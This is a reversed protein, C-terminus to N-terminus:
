IGMLNFWKEAILYQERNDMPNSPLDLGAGSKTCLKQFLAHRHKKQWLPNTGAVFARDLNGSRQVARDALGSDLEPFLAKIGRPIEASDFFELTLYTAHLAAQLYNRYERRSRVEQYVYTGPDYTVGILYFLSALDPGMQDALAMDMIIVLSEAFNLYRRLSAFKNSSPPLISWLIRHNQEHFLSSCFTRLMLIKEFSKSGRLDTAAWILEREIPSYEVVPELLIPSSLTRPTSILSPIFSWNNALYLRRSRRFLSSCNLLHYDFPQEPLGMTSKPIRNSFRGLLQVGRKLLAGQKKLPPVGCQNWMMKISNAWEPLSYLM